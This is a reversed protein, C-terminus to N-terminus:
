SRRPTPPTVACDDYRVPIRGFRPVRVAAIATNWVSLFRRVDPDCKLTHPGYVVVERGGQAIRLTEQDSESVTYHPQLQELRATEVARQIAQLESRSLRQLYTASSEDYPSVVLSVRGDESLLVQWPATGIMGPSYSLTLWPPRTHPAEAPTGLSACGSALLVFLVVFPVFPKM